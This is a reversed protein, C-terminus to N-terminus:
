HSSRSLNLGNEVAKLLEETTFPKVLKVIDYKKEEIELLFQNMLGSMVIIRVNPNIEKMLQISELGNMVPMMIDTIVLAIEDSHETYLKLAELGDKATVVRYGFIELTAQAIECITQENDVLLILENKGNIVLKEASIGATQEQFDLGPLYISFITGKGVESQVDLFGGHSKVISYVTFLGIGTGKGIGKTTFFPDFIKDIINKPIGTGTDEIEVLLYNGVKAEAFISTSLDDVFINKCSISLVGGEPMADRANVCLNMLIQDLQTPDAHINWLDKEYTSRIEISPPFTENIIKQIESILHKINVSTREGETGRAFFLVKKVLDSGRIASKEITSLLRLAMPEKIIRLLNESGLLIPQFINNLDHAIGSALAGISEIRQNRLFHAEIRKKETIDTNIVLASKPNGKNDRVLTVRSEVTIETGKKNNHVLEGYWEGKELLMKRMNIVNTLSEGLFLEEPRKGIVEDASWGYIREAGINWYSILGTQIDRVFIADTAVDLFTVLEKIRNATNIRETIDTNIVLISKPNGQKDLMLTSNSEVILETGNQSLQHLEGRWEGKELIDKHIIELQQVNKWHFLIDYVSKGIVESSFWGYLREAGKNWYLIENTAADRVYIADTANDLLDAQERIKQESKKRESIDRITTIIIVGDGTQVYGLSVESNFETGDKHLGFLEVGSGGGMSRIHPKASYTDRHHSHSSHFRKPILYEITKGILEDQRYGFLKEVQNSTRIIKGEQSIFITADPTSNLMANLRDESDKSKKDANKSVTLDKIFGHFCKIHESESNAVFGDISIWIPSGDKKRFQIENDSISGLSTVKSILMEREDINYYLEQMNVSLIEEVSDYGLIKAFVENAIIITGASVSQFIGVPAFNFITRYKEESLRLEEKAKKRESIDRSTVYIYGTEDDVEKYYVCKAELYIWTGNKHIRRYEVIHVQGPNAVGAQIETAVRHQDEPHILEMSSKGILEEAEYGFIRKVASNTFVISGDIKMITIVDSIHEIVNRLNKEQIERDNSEKLINQWTCCQQLNDLKKPFICNACANSIPKGTSEVSCKIADVKLDSIEVFFLPVKSIEEQLLKFLDNDKEQNKSACLVINPNFNQLDFKIERTGVNIKSVFDIGTELLYKHIISVDILENALILVKM